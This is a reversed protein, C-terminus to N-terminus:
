GLLAAAPDASSSANRQQDNSALATALTPHRGRSWASL